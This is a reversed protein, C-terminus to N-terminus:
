MQCVIQKEAIPNQQDESILQFKSKAGLGSTKTSAPAFPEELDLFNLGLLVVLHLQELGAPDAELAPCEHADVDMGISLPEGDPTLPDVAAPHGDPVHLGDHVLGGGLVLVHRLQQRLHVVVFAADVADPPRM